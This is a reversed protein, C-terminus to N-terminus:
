GLQVKHYGPLADKPLERLFPAMWHKSARRGGEAVKAALISADCETESIIDCATGFIM